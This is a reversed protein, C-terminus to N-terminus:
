LKDMINKVRDMLTQKDYPKTIYDIAGMEKARLKESTETVSTLFAIPVDVLKIVAKLRHYTEWGDMDPMLIDLLVLDPIQKRIFYEIAEKGSRATLINYENTLIAEAIMLQIDDDDVILINKKGSDAM